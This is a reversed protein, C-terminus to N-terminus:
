AAEQAEEVMEQLKDKLKTLLDHLQTNETSDLCAWPAFFYRETEDETQQRLAKQYFPAFARLMEIALSSVKEKDTM